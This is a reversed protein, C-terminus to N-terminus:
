RRSPVPAIQRPHCHPSRSCTPRCRPSTPSRKLRHQWNVLGLPLRTCSPRRCGAAAGPRTATRAASCPAEPPRQPASPRGAQLVYMQCPTLQMLPGQLRQRAPHPPAWPPQWQLTMAASRQDFARPTPSSPRLPLACSDIQGSPEPLCIASKLQAQLLQQTSRYHRSKIQVHDSESFVRCRQSAARPAACVSLNRTQTGVSGSPRHHTTRCIGRSVGCAGVECRTSRRHWRRQPTSM